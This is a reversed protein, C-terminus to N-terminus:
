ELCLPHKRHSCLISSEKWFFLWVEHKKKSTKTPKETTVAESNWASWVPDPGQWALPHSGCCDQTWSPTLWDAARGTTFTAKRPLRLFPLFVAPVGGWPGQSEPCSQSPQHLLNLDVKLLHPGVLQPSYLVWWNADALAWWNPSLMEAAVFSTHHLVSSWLPNERWGPGFSGLFEWRKVGGWFFFLWVGTVPGLNGPSASTMKRHKVLNVQMTQTPYTAEIPGSSIKGMPFPTEFLSRAVGPIRSVAMKPLNFLEWFQQKTNIHTNKKHKKSTLEHFHLQSAGGETKPHSSVKHTHVKKRRANAKCGGHNQKHTLINRWGRPGVATLIGVLTVFFM